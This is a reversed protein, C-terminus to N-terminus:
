EFKKPLKDEVIEYKELQFPYNKQLDELLQGSAIENNIEDKIEDIYDLAKEFAITGKIEQELDEFKQITETVDDTETLNQDVNIM